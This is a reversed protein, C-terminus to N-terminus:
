GLLELKPNYQDKLKQKFSKVFWKTNVENHCEWVNRYGNSCILNNINELWKSKLNRQQHLSYLISYMAIATNNNGNINLKTQFSIARSQIVIILPYIGLEGYIM